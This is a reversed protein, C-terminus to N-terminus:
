DDRLVKISTRNLDDILKPFNKEVLCFNIEYFKKIKRVFNNQLKGLSDAPIVLFKVDDLNKIDVKHYVLHRHKYKYKVYKDIINSAYNTMKLEDIFKKMSKNFSHKSNSNRLLRINEGTIWGYKVSDKCLSDPHLYLHRSNPKEFLSYNINSYHTDNLSLKLDLFNLYKECKVFTFKLSPSMKQMTGYLNFFEEESDCGVLIDDLYRMYVQPKKVIKFLNEEYYLMFLNAFAPAVNSGMATGKIQRYSQKDYCFYNNTLVWKLLKIILATSRPERGKRCLFSRIISIGELIDINTYMSEVDISYVFLKKTLTLNDLKHIVSLSNDVIWDCAEVYPWLKEHLWISIKSTVWNYNPVIPRTKVPNKHLKPIVYFNLVNYIGKQLSKVTFPLKTLEAIIEHLDLWISNLDPEQKVYFNDDLIHRNVEANYWQLPMITLGMNKDSHKVILKHRELFKFVKKFTNNINFDYKLYKNKIKEIYINYNAILYSDNLNEKKIIKLMKEKILLLNALNDNINNKFLIFNGGFSLLKLIEDPIEVTSINNTKNKYNKHFKLVFLNNKSFYSTPKKNLEKKKAWKTIPKKLVMKPKVKIPAPNLVKDIEEKKEIKPKSVAALRIDTIGMRFKEVYKKVTCRVYDDIVIENKVLISLLNITIYLEAHNYLLQAESLLKNAVTLKTQKIFSLFQTTNLRVTEYEDPTLHTLFFTSLYPELKIPNNDPNTTSKEHIKQLGVICDNMKRFQMLSYAVTDTFLGWDGVAIEPFEVQCTTRYMEHVKELLQESFRLPAFGNENLKLWLSKETQYSNNM